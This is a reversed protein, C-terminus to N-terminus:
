NSVFYNVAVAEGLGLEGVMRDLDFRMRQLTGASRWKRKIEEPIRSNPKQVYLIFIYRHPAAAPPPGAPLWPVLADEDSKLKGSSKDIQLDTQISHVIPSLVNWSIFPADVDISIATYKGTDESALTSPASLSPPARTDKKNIKTGPTVQQGNIGIGLVPYTGTSLDRLLSEYKTIDPM